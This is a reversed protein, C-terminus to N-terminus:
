NDDNDEFRKSAELQVIRELEKESNVIDKNKKSPAKKKKKKKLMEEDSDEQEDDYQRKTKQSEEEQEEVVRKRKKMPAEGMLLKHSFSDANVSHYVEDNTNMSVNGYSRKIFGLCQKLQKNVKNAHTMLTGWEELTFSLRTSKAARKVLHVYPKGNFESVNLVINQAPPEFMIPNGKYLSKKKEGGKYYRSSAYMESDSDM